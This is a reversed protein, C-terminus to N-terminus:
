DLLSRHGVGVGGPRGKEIERAARCQDGSGTAAETQLHGAGQGTGPRIEHDGGSLDFIQSGGHGRELGVAV